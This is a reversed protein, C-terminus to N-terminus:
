DTRLTLRTRPSLWRTLLGRLPDTDPSTSFLQESFIQRCPVISLSDFSMVTRILALAMPVQCRSCSRGTSVTAPPSSVAQKLSHLLDDLHPHLGDDAIVILNIPKTSSSSGSDSGSHSCASYRDQLAQALSDEKKLQFAQLPLGLGERLLSRFSLLSMASDYFSLSLFPLITVTYHGESPRLPRGSRRQQSSSFPSVAGHLDAFLSTQSCLIFALVLVDLPIALADSLWLAMTFAANAEIRHSVISLYVVCATDRPVLQSSTSPNLTSSLHCRAHADGPWHKPDFESSNLDFADGEQLDQLDQLLNLQKEVSTSPLIPTAHNVEETVKMVDAVLKDSALQVQLRGKEDLKFVMNDLEEKPRKEQCREEVLALLERARKMWALRCVLLAQSRACFVLSNNPECRQSECLECSISSDKALPM